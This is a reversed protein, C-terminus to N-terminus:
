EMDRRSEKMRTPIHLQNPFFSMRSPFPILTAVVYETYVEGHEYAHVAFVHGRVPVAQAPAVQPALVPVANRRPDVRLRRCPPCHHVRVRFRAYESQTGLNNTYLSSKTYPPTYAPQSQKARASAPQSAPKSRITFPYRLHRPFKPIPLPASPKAESRQRSRARYTPCSRHSHVKEAASAIM